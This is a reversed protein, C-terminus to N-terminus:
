AQREKLAAVQSEFEEASHATLKEQAGQVSASGDVEGHEGPAKIPFNVRSRKGGQNSRHPKPGFTRYFSPRAPLFKPHYFKNVILLILIGAHFRFFSALTARYGPYVCKASKIFLSVQFIL